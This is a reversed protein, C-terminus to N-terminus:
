FVLLLGVKRNGKVTFRWSGNGNRTEVEAKGVKEQVWELGGKKKFKNRIITSM